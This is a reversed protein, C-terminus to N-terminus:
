RNDLVSIIVLTVVCLVPIIEHTPVYGFPAGNTTCESSKTAPIGLLLTSVLM